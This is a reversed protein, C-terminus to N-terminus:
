RGCSASAPITTPWRPAYGRGEKGRQAMAGEAGFKIVVTPVIEALKAVAVELDDTKVITKAERANPLFVDVYQLSEFL